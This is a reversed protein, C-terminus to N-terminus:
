RGRGLRAPVSCHGSGRDRCPGWCGAGRLPPGGGGRRGGWGGGMVVGFVGLFMFVVVVAWEACQTCFTPLVFIIAVVFVAIFIIPAWLGFREVYSLILNSYRAVEDGLEFFHVIAVFVISLLALLAPIIWLWTKKM